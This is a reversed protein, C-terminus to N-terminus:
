RRFSQAESAAPEPQRSRAVAAPWATASVRTEMPMGAARKILRIMRPFRLAIARLLFNAQAAVLDARSRFFARLSGLGPAWAQGPGQVLAYGHATLWAGCLRELLAIQGPTGQERWTSGSQRMHNWHLLTTADCIQVNAPSTLDIGAQHLSRKLAETRARNSEQSYEEAIRAAESLTLEIGLHRALAMVGGCPDAVLDEYREVLVGPQKVWFRDNALIQHIMGQRLLQEFTLDRKHMMSFVVDRVDRYAYVARARGEALARAFCRDGEHSKLVRWSQSRSSHPASQESRLRAAYEEATLYGLREGGHHVELLHAVVEYQWTSCARYM